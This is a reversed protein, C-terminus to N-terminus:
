NDLEIYACWAFNVIKDNVEKLTPQGVFSATYETCPVYVQWTDSGKITEIIVGYNVTTDGVKLKIRDGHELLEEKSFWDPPLKSQNKICCEEITLYESGTSEYCGYSCNPKFCLQYRLTDIDQIFIFNAGKHYVIGVAPIYALKVNTKM